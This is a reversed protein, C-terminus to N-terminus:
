TTSSAPPPGLAPVLEAPNYRLPRIITRPQVDLMRIAYRVQRRSRGFHRALEDVTLLVTLIDNM